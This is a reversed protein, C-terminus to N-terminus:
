IIVKFVLTSLLEINVTTPRSNTSGLFYPFETEFYGIM